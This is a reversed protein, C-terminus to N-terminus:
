LGYFDKTLNYFNNFFKLESENYEDPIENPEVFTDDFGPIERVLKLNHGGFVPFYGIEINKKTHLLDIDISSSIKKINENKKVTLLELFKKNNMTIKMPFLNLSSDFIISYQGPTEQNIWKLDAGENPRDTQNVVQVIFVDKGTDNIVEEIGDGGVKYSEDKKIVNYFKVLYKESPKFLKKFFGPNAKPADPVYAYLDLKENKELNPVLERPTFNYFANLFNKVEAEDYKTDNDTYSEHCLKITNLRPFYPFTYKYKSEPDIEIRKKELDLMFNWLIDNSFSVDKEWESAYSIEPYNRFVSEVWSSPFVDKYFDLGQDKLPKKDKEYFYTKKDLEEKIDGCRM